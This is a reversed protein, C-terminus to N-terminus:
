LKPYKRAFWALAHRVLVRRRTSCAFCPLERLSIAEAIEDARLGLLDAIMAPSAALRYPLPKVRARPMVTRWRHQQPSM